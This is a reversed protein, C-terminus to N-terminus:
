TVTSSTTVPTLMARSMVSRVRHGANSQWPVPNTLTSQTKCAISAANSSQRPVTSGVAVNVGVPVTECVGRWVDVGEVWAPAEVGKAVAVSVAVRVGVARTGVGM